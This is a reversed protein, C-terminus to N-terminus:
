AAQSNDASAPARNWPLFKNLRNIKNDHIRDLIDALCAQPDIGNLKATEIVTMARARTEACGRYDGGFTLPQPLLIKKAIHVLLNRIFVLLYVSACIMAM